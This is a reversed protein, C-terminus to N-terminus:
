RPDRLTVKGSATTVIPSSGPEVALGGVGQLVDAELEVSRLSTVVHGFSAQHIERDERNEDGGCQQRGEREQGEPSM